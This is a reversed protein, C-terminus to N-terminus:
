LRWNKRDQLLRDIMRDVDEGMATAAREAESLSDFLLVFGHEAVSTDKQWTSRGVLSCQAILRSGDVIRVPRKSRVGDQVLADVEQQNKHIFHFNLFARRGAPIMTLNTSSRRPEAHVRVAERDIDAIQVIIPEPLRVPQAVVAFAGIFLGICTTVLLRTNPKM